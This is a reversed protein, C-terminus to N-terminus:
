AVKFMIKVGSVIGFIAWFNAQDRGYSDLWFFPNM